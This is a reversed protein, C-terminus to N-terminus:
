FNFRAGLSFVDVEGEQDYRVMLAIAQSVNYYGGINLGLDSDDFIDVYNLGGEVQFGPQLEHRVYAALRFGTDSDDAAGADVNSHLVAVDAVLDTKAALGHIYGGGLLLNFASDLPSDIDDYSVAGLLRFRPTGSLGYSFTGGLGVGDPGDYDSLRLVADAYSYNMGSTQAGVPQAAIALLAGGIMWVKVQKM